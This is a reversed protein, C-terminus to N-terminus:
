DNRAGKWQKLLEPVQKDRIHALKEKVEYSSSVLALSAQMTLILIESSYLGIEDCEECFYGIDPLFYQDTECGCIVCVDEYIIDNM